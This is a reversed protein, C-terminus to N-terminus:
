IYATTPPLWVTDRRGPRGLLRVGSVSFADNLMARSRPSFGWAWIEKLHPFDAQSRQGLHLLADLMFTADPMLTLSEISRPLFNTLVHKALHRQPPAQNETTGQVGTTAGHFSDDTDSDADDYILSDRDALIDADVQIVKLVKMARMSGFICARQDQVWTARNLSFTVRLETLTDKRRLLARSIQRPTPTDDDIASRDNFNCCFSELLPLAAILSCLESGRFLGGVFRIRKLHHPEPLCLLDFGCGIITELQPALLCIDRFSIMRFSLIFLEKLRAMTLHGLSPLTEPDMRAHLYEVNPILGFLLAYLTPEVTHYSTVRGETLPWGAGSSYPIEPLWRPVEGNSFVERMMLSNLTKPRYEQEFEEWERNGAEVILTERRILANVSDVEEPSLDYGGSRRAELAHFIKVNRGLDPRRALLCLLPIVKLEPAAIWHFVLPQVVNCIHRCTLSLSKLDPCENAPRLQLQARLSFNPKSSLICHPCLQQYIQLEIELPLNLLRAM